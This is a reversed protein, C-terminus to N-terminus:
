ILRSDWEFEYGSSRAGLSRLNIVNTDLARSTNHIKIPTALFFFSHPSINQHLDFSFWIFWTHVSVRVRTKFPTPNEGWRQVPDSRTMSTLSLSPPPLVEPSGGLSWRRYPIQAVTRSSAVLPRRCLDGSNWTSAWAVVTTRSSSATPTAKHSPCSTSSSTLGGGIEVKCSRVHRLAGGLLWEVTARGCMPPCARRHPPERRRWGKGQGAAGSQRIRTACPRRRSTSQETCRLSSFHPLTLFSSPNV